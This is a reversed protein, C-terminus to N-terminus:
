SNRTFFKKVDAGILKWIGWLVLPVILYLVFESGDYGYYRFGCSSCIRYGFPWLGDEASGVGIVLLFCNILFWFLYLAVFGKNDNLIQKFKNGMNSKMIITLM